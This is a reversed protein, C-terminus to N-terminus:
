KIIEYKLTLDQVPGLTTIMAVALAQAKQWALIDTFDKILM